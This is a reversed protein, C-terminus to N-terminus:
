YQMFHCWKIHINNFLNEILSDGAGGGGGM